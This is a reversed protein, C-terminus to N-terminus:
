GRRKRCTDLVDRRVSDAEQAIEGAMMEIQNLANLARNEIEERVIDSMKEELVSRAWRVDRLEREIRVIKDRLVNEGRQLTKRVKKDMFRM